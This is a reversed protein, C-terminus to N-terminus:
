GTRVREVVERLSRAAAEVDEAGVIASVVAIGVAGARMMDGANGRNIGGIAIVPVAVAGSMARLGGVELPTPADPKTPTSFVPSAGIYDAGDDVAKRAEAVSGASVGLIKKRGILRRALSAPMDDQGVHVGDADVALAVDVRDNVIFPVGAARCLALLAAAEEIMRRTPSDKERYQVITVGGRVAAEVIQLHSRGRSLGADTVLYLLYTAAPAPSDM